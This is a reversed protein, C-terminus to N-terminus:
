EMTAETEEHSIVTNKVSKNSAPPPLRPVLHAHSNAVRRLVNESLVARRRTCNRDKAKRGGEKGGECGVKLHQLSLLDGLSQGSFM